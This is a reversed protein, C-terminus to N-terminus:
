LCEKEIFYTTYLSALNHIRHINKISILGEILGASFADGAGVLNKTNKSDLEIKTKAGNRLFIESGKNGKTLAIIKLKKNILFLNEISYKNKNINKIKRYEYKNLKLHTTKSLLFDINNIDIYPERLNIDLFVVKIKNKLIKKLASRSIEYRSSITGLYLIDPVFKPIKQIEDWACYPGIEFKRISNKRGIINTFGTPLKKHKDVFKTSVENNELFNLIKNGNNDKGVKSCLYVPRGFGALHVSVHLPAGAIVKKKSYYDHLSEGFCLIKLKEKFLNKM